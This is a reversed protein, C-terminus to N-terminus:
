ISDFEFNCLLKGDIVYQEYDGGHSTMDELDFFGSGFALGLKPFQVIIDAEDGHIPHEMFLMEQGADNIHSGLVYANHEVVFKNLEKPNRM